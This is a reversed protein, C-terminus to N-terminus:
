AGRRSRASGGSRRPGPTDTRAVTFRFRIGIDYARQRHPANASLNTREEARVGIAQVGPAPLATSKPVIEADPPWRKLLMPPLSISVFILLFPRLFFTECSRRAAARCECDWAADVGGAGLASGPRTSVAAARTSPDGEGV